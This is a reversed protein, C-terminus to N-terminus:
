EKDFSYNNRDDTYIRKKYEINKMIYLNNVTIGEEGAISRYYKIDNLDILPVRVVNNFVARITTDINIAFKGKLLMDSAINSLAYGDEKLAEKIQTYFEATVLSMPFSMLNTYADVVIIDYKKNSEILFKKIEDTQYFKNEKLKEKLFKKQSIEKLDSDIDVYTYKNKTDNFGVTFGGAGVVLIDKDAREDKQIYNNIVNIYPYFSTNGPNTKSSSSNNINMYTSGEGETVSVTNYMNDYEINFTSVGLSKLNIMLFMLFAIAIGVKVKDKAILFILMLLMTEILIFTNSVGIFRMSILVTIVSGAFSGATSLFLIKGTIRSMEKSSFYNSILPVTQGLFFTPISLFVLLYATLLFMLNYQSLAEFYSFMVIYSFGIGSLAVIIFINRVLIHRIKTSSRKKILESYRKGGYYYGIALPLLVSSIIISVMETGTGVFPIAQRIVLLELSLTFFGEILIIIFFISTLKKSLM